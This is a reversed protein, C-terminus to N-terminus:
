SREARAEDRLRVIDEASLRTGSRKKCEAIEDLLQQLDEDRSDM